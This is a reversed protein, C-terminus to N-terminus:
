KKRVHHNRKRMPERLMLGLAGIQAYGPFNRNIIAPVRHWHSMMTRASAVTGMRHLDKYLFSIAIRILARLKVRNTTITRFFEMTGPVKAAFSRYNSAGRLMPLSAFEAGQDRLFGALEALIIDADSEPHREPADPFGASANKGASQALIAARARIQGLQEASLAPLLKCITEFEASM